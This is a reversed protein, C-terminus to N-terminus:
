AENGVKMTKKDLATFVYMAAWMWMIAIVSFLFFPILAPYELSLYISIFGLIGIGISIHVKSFGIIFANKLHQLINTQYHTLLPFSWIIVLIYVIIIFYFAFPVIFSVTEQLGQLVRYNVYLLSGIATLIWGLANAAKFESTYGEKFTKWIKIDQEGSVWKRSVGLAAVTAPFVGALLFGRLSFLLWLMNVYALRVIWSMMKELTTVMGNVNM